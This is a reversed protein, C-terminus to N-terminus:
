RLIAVMDARGKKRAYDLPSKGDVNRADQDAGHEILYHVLALQGIQVAVHLATDGTSLDHSNIDAGYEISLKVLDFNGNLAAQPLYSEDGVIRCLEAPDAGHAILARM